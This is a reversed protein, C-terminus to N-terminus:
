GPEVVAVAGAGVLAEGAALLVDERYPAAVLQVGVPVGDARGTSVTLAPCGVLPLGIQTLQAEAM